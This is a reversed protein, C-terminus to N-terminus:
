SLLPDTESMGEEKSPSNIKTPIDSPEVVKGKNLKGGRKFDLLILVIAFLLAIGGSTLLLLFTNFYPNVPTPFSDQVYGVLINFVGVSVMQLASAIGVATGVYSVDVLLPISPWLAAASITYGAGLIILSAIPTISTSSAIAFSAVSFISGLAIMWTRRGFRDAFAGALPSFVASFYYPVGATVSADFAISDNCPKINSGCDYFKQKIFDPADAIFPFVTNYFMILCVCLVWFTSPFSLIAKFQFRKKPKDESGGEAEKEKNLGLKKARKELLAYIFACIVSFLCLGCSFFLTKELGSPEVAHLFPTTVFFNLMSGLRSATLAIGFAVALEKGKFWRAIIAAQVVSISGGGIGLLVRGAIVPIFNTIAVGLTFLLQGVLVLAAYIIATKSPGIKDVLIGGPLTLAANVWAYVLYLTNYSESSLLECTDFYPLCPVCTNNDGDKANSTCPSGFYSRIDTELTSPLDYSYYNGFTLLCAFTLVIYRFGGMQPYGAPELWWSINNLL